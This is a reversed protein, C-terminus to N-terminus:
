PTTAASAPTSVRKSRATNEDDKYYDLTTYTGLNVENGKKDKGLISVQQSFSGDENKLTSWKYNVDKYNNDKRSKNYMKTADTLAGVYQYVDGEQFAFVKTNTNGM